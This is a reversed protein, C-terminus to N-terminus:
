GGWGSSVIIQRHRLDRGQEMNELMQEAPVCEECGPGCIHGCCLLCFGRIRGSGAKHVWHCGCHVCQITDVQECLDTDPHTTILVGSPKILGASM